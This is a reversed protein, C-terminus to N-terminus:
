DKVFDTYTAILRLCQYGNDVKINYMQKFAINKGIPSPNNNYFDKDNFIDIIEQAIRFPRFVPKNEENRILYLSKHVIIDFFITYDEVSGTSDFELDPFYVRLESVAKDTYSEFPFPYVRDLFLDSSEKKTLIPNTFPTDNDYKILQSVIQKKREDGKNSYLISNIIYILNSSVRELRSSM